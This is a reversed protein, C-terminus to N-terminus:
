TFLTHAVSRNADFDNNWQQEAAITPLLAIAACVALTAAVLLPHDHRLMNRCNTRQSLSLACAARWKPCNTKVGGSKGM